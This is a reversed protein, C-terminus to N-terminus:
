PLLADQLQRLASLPRDLVYLKEKVSAGIEPARSIWEGVPGALAMAALGVAVLMLLALLAATLWPPIGYPRARQAVPSLTMGIIVAALVPLLVPRCFYMGAVALMVFIGATAM